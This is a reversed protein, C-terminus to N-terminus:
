AENVTVVGSIKLTISATLKDDIAASMDFATLIATFTYTTATAAGPFTIICDKATPAATAVDSWENEFEDAAVSGPDIMIELSVEGSDITGAMFTKHISSLNTTDITAVSVAPATISVVDGILQGNYTFTTGSATIAM